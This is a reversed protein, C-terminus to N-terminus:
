YLLKKEEFWEQLPSEVQIQNFLGKLLRLGEYRVTVLQNLDKVRGPEPYDKHTHMPYNYTEPLSELQSPFYKKM